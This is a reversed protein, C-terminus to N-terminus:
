DKELRGVRRELEEIRRDRVLFDKVADSGRYRDDGATKLKDEVRDLIAGLVEVKKSTEFTTAGMWGLVAVNMALMITQFHSAYASKKEDSM